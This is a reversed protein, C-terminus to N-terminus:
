RNSLPITAEIRNKLRQYLEEESHWMIFNYHTVDFHLKEKDEDKARCTWIVPLGLGAAFGAELYVGGKNGTFDAIIFRSKRIEAFVRDCVYDNHETEAVILPQYGTDEVAKRITRRYIDMMENDYSMAVFCQTLSIETRLSEARQIGSLTLHVGVGGTSRTTDEIWMLKHLLNLMRQLERESKAYGVAPHAFKLEVSEGLTDMKRNLHLLLKDLREITARPLLSSSLLDDITASPGDDFINNAIVPIPMGLENMECILGSILYKKGQYEQQFASPLDDYADETIHYQGCNPCEFHYIGHMRDLEPRLPFDCFSCQKTEVSM